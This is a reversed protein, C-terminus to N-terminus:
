RGVASADATGSSPPAHRSGPGLLARAFRAHGGGMARTLAVTLVLLLVGLAAWPLAAATSDVTIWRIENDPFYYAGDPLFRYIVPLFTLWLGVSWSTVILVFEAVGLPFLLVLYAFDKWTTADRLRAKWRRAQRGEPLPRHPAAIYTGLLAHVRARELRGAGRAALVAFMLVPVGIWIVATAAGVAVLTITGVFGVIGLPLNLLLYALAGGISPHPRGADQEATTSNM